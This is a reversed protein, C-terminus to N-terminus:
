AWTAPCPTLEAHESESSPTVFGHLQRRGMKSAAMRLEVDVAAVAPLARVIPPVVVKGLLSSQTSAEAVARLMNRLVRTSSM